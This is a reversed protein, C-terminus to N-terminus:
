YIYGQKNKKTERARTSCEETVVIIFYNIRKQIIGASKKKIIKKKTRFAQTIEQFVPPTRSVKGSFCCDSSSSLLPSAAVAGFPAGRPQPLWGARIYTVAQSSVRGRPMQPFFVVLPFIQSICIYDSSIHWKCGSDSFLVM